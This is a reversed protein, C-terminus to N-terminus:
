LFRCSVGRRSSPLVPARARAKLGLGSPPSPFLGRPGYMGLRRCTEFRSAPSVSIEATPGGQPNSVVVQICRGSELIM